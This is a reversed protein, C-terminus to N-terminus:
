DNRRDAQPAILVKIEDDAVIDYKKRLEALYRDKAQTERERRWEATVRERIESLPPMSAEKIASVRVLHLGYGSQVPGSWNSAELAFVARAFDPGSTSSVSQETEDRLEARILQRYGLSAIWTTSDDCVLM